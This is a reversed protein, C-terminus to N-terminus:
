LCPNVCTLAEFKSMYLLHCADFDFHNKNSYTKKIHILRNINSKILTVDCYSTSFVQHKRNFCIILVNTTHSEDIQTGYEGIDQLLKLRPLFPINGYYTIIHMLSSLFFFVM